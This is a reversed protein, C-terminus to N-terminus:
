SYFDTTDTAEQDELLSEEEQVISDVDVVIQGIQQAQIRIAPDTVTAEYDIGSLLKNLFSLSCPKTGKLVSYFNATKLGTMICYQPYGHVYNDYILEKIYEGQEETLQVTIEKNEVELSPVDDQQTTESDM